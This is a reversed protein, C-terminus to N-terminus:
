NGIVVKNCTPPYVINVVRVLTNRQAIAFPVLAWPLFVSVLEGMSVTITGKAKLKANQFFLFLFCFFNLFILFEVSFISVFQDYTVSILYNLRIEFWTYDSLCFIVLCRM